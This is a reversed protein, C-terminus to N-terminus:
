CWNKHLTFVTVGPHSTQNLSPSYTQGNEEGPDSTCKVLGVCGISKSQWQSSQEILSHLIDPLIPCIEWDPFLCIHSVSHM